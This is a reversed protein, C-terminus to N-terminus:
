LDNEMKELEALKRVYNMLQDKKSSRYVDFLVKDEEFIKNATEATEEDMYYGDLKKIGDADVYRMTVDERGLLYDSTVNFVDCLAILDEQGPRRVGREYQSITQKTVDLMDALEQQSYGRSLRLERLRENFTAM